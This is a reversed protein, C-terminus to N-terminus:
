VEMFCPHPISTVGGAAHVACAVDRFGLRKLPIYCPRGQALFRNFSEKLSPVAGRKVLLQALHPRGISGSAIRRVEDIKIDLGLQDACRKVMKAMREERSRKMFLFIEHLSPCAPDVFYGLLEGRIGNFDVKIEVGTIVELGNIKIVRETLEQSITDHDTIAIASLGYAAARKVLQLIGQTGDSATTHLHLDAYGESM